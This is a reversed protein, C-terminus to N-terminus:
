MLALLKTKFEEAPVTKIGLRKAWTLVGEDTTTLYADLEKALLLIDVDTTSDLFNTRIAKRFRDRLKNITPALFLEKEAKSDFKNEQNLALEFIQRIQEESVKLARFTRNRIDKILEYIFNGPIMIKEREPTKITVLSFFTKLEEPKEEFFSNIEEYVSHPIFFEARQKKALSEILPNLKSLLETTNSGLDKIEELNFLINTDIVFKKM